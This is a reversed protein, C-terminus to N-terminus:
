DTTQGAAAAAAVTGVSASGAARATGTAGASSGRGEDEPRGGERAVAAVASAARCSVQGAAVAAM